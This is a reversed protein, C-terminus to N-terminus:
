MVSAWEGTSANRRATCCDQLPQFCKTLAAPVARIGDAAADADQLLGATAAVAQMVVYCSTLLKVCMWCISSLPAQSLFFLTEFLTM